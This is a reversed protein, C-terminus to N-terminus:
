FIVRSLTRCRHLAGALLTECLMRGLCAVLQNEFLQPWLSNQTALCGKKRRWVPQKAICFAVDWRKECAMVVLVSPANVKGSWQILCFFSAAM